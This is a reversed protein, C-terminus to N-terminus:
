TGLEFARILKERIDRNSSKLTNENMIKRSKEFM